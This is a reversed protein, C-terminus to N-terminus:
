AIPKIVLRVLFMQKIQTEKIEIPEYRKKGDKRLEDNDSCLMVHDKRQSQQLRKLMEYEPTIIYYAEGWRIEKKNKIERCAVICGNEYTPYMSHGFVAKSFDCDEFGPVQIFRTPSNHLDNYIHVGGSAAMPKDYFPIPASPKDTIQTLTRLSDITNKKLDIGYVEQFKEIFPKSAKRTGLLYKSVMSEDWGMQQAIERNSLEKGKDLAAKRLFRVSDRLETNFIPHEALIKEAQYDISQVLM